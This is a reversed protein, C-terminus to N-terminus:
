GVDLCPKEWPHGLGAVAGPWCGPRRVGEACSRWEPAGEGMRVVRPIDSRSPPRRCARHPGAALLPAPAIDPAGERDLHERDRRRAHQLKVAPHVGEANALWLARVSDAVPPPKTGNCREGDPDFERFFRGSYRLAAPMYHAGATGGFDKGRVLKANYPLDRLAVGHASKAGGLIAALVQQRATVLESGRPGLAYVFSDASNYEGEGGGAKGNSCGCLLLVSSRSSAIAGEGGFETAM